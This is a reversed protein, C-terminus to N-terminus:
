TRPSSAIVLVPKPRRESMVKKGSTPASAM